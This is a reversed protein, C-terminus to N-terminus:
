LIYIQLNVDECKLDKKLIYTTKFKSKHPSHLEKNAKNHNLGLLTLMSSWQWLLIFILILILLPIIINQPKQFWSKNENISM